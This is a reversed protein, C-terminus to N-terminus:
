PRKTQEYREIEKKHMYRASIPRIQLIDNVERFTFVIFILRGSKNQGVGRWRQEVEAPYADPQILPDNSLVYETDERDVGHKETHTINGDDWDFHIPKDIVSSLIVKTRVNTM